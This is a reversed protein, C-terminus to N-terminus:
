LNISGRLHEESIVRRCLPVSYTGQLSVARTEAGEGIAIEQLKHESAGPNNHVTEHMQLRAFYRVTLPALQLLTSNHVLQFLFNDTVDAM